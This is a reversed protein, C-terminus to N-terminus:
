KVTPGEHCGAPKSPAFPNGLFNDACKDCAALTAALMFLGILRFASQRM